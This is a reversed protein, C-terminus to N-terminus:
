KGTEKRTIKHEITIAEDLSYTVLCGREMIKECKELIPLDEDDIEVAVEILIESVITRFFDDQEKVATAKGTLSKVNAKRAILASGLTAAFCYLTSACLLKVATGGRQDAPIDTYDVRIDQMADSSMMLTHNDNNDRSYEVIIEEEDSM